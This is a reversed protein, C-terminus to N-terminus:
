FKFNSVEDISPISTTAGNRSVSIASAKAALELTKRISFNQIVGSIFYGTFTDGAATTDVTNVKYISQYIEETEDKYISGAVGLTLVIKSKPYLKLLAPLINDTKTEGTIQEAEIENLIFMTIKSLDCNSLNEDFPSPNLIIKIGKSYAKEIIYELCNVENQLLLLDNSDFYEFVEDIYAEELKRNSGGYLLICNQGYKDIQIVTHGSPGQIKRIFSTDVGNDDCTTLLYDGDDGIQGAHYVKIGAKALAISQNLGKGGCYTERGVSTITEGPKLIHDVSYVYDYNLSGFNLIRKPVGESLFM